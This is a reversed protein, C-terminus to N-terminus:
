RELIVEENKTIKKVRHLPVQIFGENNALTIFMGDFKVINTFPMVILEEVKRDKYHFRYDAPNLKKDWTIKDFLEKLQPKM